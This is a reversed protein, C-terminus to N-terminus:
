TAQFVELKWLAASSSTGTKVLRRLGVMRGEIPRLANGIRKGDLRKGDYRSDYAALADWLANWENAPTVVTPAQERRLDADQMVVKLTRAKGDPYCTGWAHLLDALAEYSTDSAEALGVRGACPDPCGAWVLAHRILASWKEFSGYEKLGSQKPCKAVFFAKLVTLAAVVFRPREKQVWDLLDAHRFTREEPREKKADLDMPIVRRLMDGAFVVNNGSAFVVTKWPAKIETTTGLPRGAIESTTIASELKDNGFPRTINDIHICSDGALAIALLRKMEEAPDETQTWTPAARGTGILAIGNVLLGKGTGATHARAIFAPVPGNVARRAVVTLTGAKAAARHCEQTFPFEAFPEDLELVAARADDLTPQDPVPPFTTGNFDLYLGTKTHYGEEQILEGDACLLPTHVIGELPSFQWDLRGCLTDLAERDPRAPVWKKERKNHKIWRASRSSLERVYAPSAAVIVPSGPPRQLYPPAKGTPAIRVIQLMRQYLPKDPLACLAAEAKNAMRTLDTSIKIEPKPADQKPAKQTPAETHEKGGPPPDSGPSTGEEKREQDNGERANRRSESPRDERGDSNVTPKGPSEKHSEAHSEADAFDAPNFSTDGSTAETPGDDPPTDDADGAEEEEEDGDANEDIVGAFFDHRNSLAVATTRALSYDARNWKDRFLGSRRFLRDIRAPDHGCYFALISCLALDAESHSPYAKPEVTWLTADGQWLRSFKDGNIASRALLLIEEDSMPNRSSAHPGDSHAGNSAGNGNMKHSFHERYLDELEEQRKECTTPTGSIHQGTVVFFRGEDYLEIKDNKAGGGPLKGKGIGHAGTGSVSAEAYTGLRQLIAWAWPEMRGTRPDRCKDLDVGFYPDDKTFVFGLGEGVGRIYAAVAEAFTGWSAPDNVAALEGAHPDLPIKDRKGNAKIRGLRYCVWQLLARLERPIDDICLDQVSRTNRGTHSEHLNTM